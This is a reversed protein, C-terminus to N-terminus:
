ADLVLVNSERYRALLHRYSYELIREELASRAWGVGRAYGLHHGDAHVFSAAVNGRDAKPRLSGNSKPLELAESHGTNTLASMRGPQNDVFLGLAATRPFQALISAEPENRGTM